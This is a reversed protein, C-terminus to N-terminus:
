DVRLRSWEVPAAPGRHKRPEAGSNPHGNLLRACVARADTEARPLPGALVHLGIAPGPVVDAHVGFAVGEAM